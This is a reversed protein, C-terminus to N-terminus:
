HPKYVSLKAALQPPAYVHYLYAEELREEKEIFTEVHLLRIVEGAAYPVILEMYIFAQKLKEEMAALMRDLGLGKLASVYLADGAPREPLPLKDIKNYVKLVPKEQLGIQQLVSEVTGMQADVKPHTIDIVHVLLDAETLEELTARFAAVLDTPLKNIFGVTDTLLIEKGSPLIVRRTTPDLTAFLKDEILVDAASLAKMLSSKGANTYGVLAVVPMGTKKRRVRYNSRHNRVEELQKKLAIIRNRVVRRDSELQTEGPGRLGVGGKVGGSRGGTQQSLNTWMRTLRPLRYQYQALEVQLQGERSHAHQAFIDLILGTRDIVKVKNDFLNELNRQQGPSLEDDVILTEVELADMEDRLEVVKGKGMYTAPDPTVLKQYNRGVVKLGATQALQDLEDLSDQIPWASKNKAIEIGFLFVKEPKTVIELERRTKSM